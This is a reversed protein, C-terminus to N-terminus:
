SCNASRAPCGSVQSARRAIRAPSSVTDGWGGKGGKTILLSRVGATLDGLTEGTRTESHGTGIPVSMPTM